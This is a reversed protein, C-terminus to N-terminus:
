GVLSPRSRILRSGLRVLPREVGYYSLVALLFTLALNLPWAQLRGLPRSGLFRQVFFLQQWIYLSYSIRGVWRLPDWELIRTALSEHKLVTGLVIGPMIFAIATQQLGSGEPWWVFLLFALIFVFHWKRIFFNFHEGCVKSGSLVAFLAPIMLADLRVDTHFQINFWMRHTLELQRHVIVCFSILALIVVRMKGRTLALLGPLLFYFHEEVSLSWFHTTFWPLHLMREIHFLSSYNRYFFLSAFWEPASVFILGVKALGAIALLYVFAPPLIRFARRVYFSRLSVRGLRDEQELLRSTILLGSIAFFVDVGRYGFRWAWWTGFLVGQNLTSHYFIVSLIAVARWGDLSPLYYPRHHSIPPAHSGMKFM